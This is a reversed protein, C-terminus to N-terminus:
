TSSLFANWHSAYQGSTSWIGAHVAPPHTYRGPPYRGLPPTGALPTHVQGPTYRCLPHVQGPHTGAWSIYRGLYKEEPCVSVQLFLRRLSRKRNTFIPPSSFITVHSSVKLRIRVPQINLPMTVYM